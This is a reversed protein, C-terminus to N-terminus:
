QFVDKFRSERMERFDRENGLEQLEEVSIPGQSLYSAAERYKKLRALARAIGIYPEKRSRTIEDEAMQKMVVRWDREAANWDGIAHHLKARDSHASISKKNKKILNDLRRFLEQKAGRDKLRALLMQAALRMDPRSADRFPEIGRKIPSGVKADTVRLTDFIRIRPEGPTTENIAVSGLARAHEPDDLLADNKEYYDAIASAVPKANTLNELFELMHPASSEPPADALAVLAGACLAENSSRISEAIFDRASEDDLLALTCFAANTVTQGADPSVGDLRDSKAIAVVVPAVREPETTTELALLANIRGQASGTSAIKLLADTTTATPASRLLDSILESRFVTKRNFDKGPELYPVLLPLSAPGLYRLENRKLDSRPGKRPSKIQDIEGVIRKIEPLLESAARGSEGRVEKLIDELSRRSQGSQAGMPSAAYPGASSLPM